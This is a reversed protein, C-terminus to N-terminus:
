LALLNRGASRLKGSMTSPETEIGTSSRLLSPTNEQSAKFFAGPIEQGANRAFLSYAMSFVLNTSKKM